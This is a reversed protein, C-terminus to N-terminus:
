SEEIKTVTVVENWSPSLNNPDISSISRKVEFLQPEEEGTRDVREFLGKHFLTAMGNEVGFHYGGGEVPRDTVRLFAYVRFADMATLTNFISTGAYDVSARLMVHYVLDQATDRDEIGLSEQYFTTLAEVKESQVEEESSADAGQVWFQSPINREAAEKAEHNTILREGKWGEPFIERVEDLTHRMTFEDRNLLSSFTERISAVMQASLDISDDAFKMFFNVTEKQSFSDNKLRNLITQIKRNYKSQESAFIRFFLNGVKEATKKASRGVCGIAARGAICCGGVVKVPVNLIARAVRQTGNFVAKGVDRVGEGVRTFFARVNPIRM